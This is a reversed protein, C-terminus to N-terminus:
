EGPILVSAGTKANVVVTFNNRPKTVAKGVFTLRWDNRDSDLECQPEEYKALDLDSSQALEKAISIAEDQEIGRSETSRSCGAVLIAGVMAMLVGRM